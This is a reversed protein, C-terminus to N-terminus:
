ARGRAKLKMNMRKVDFRVHKECKCKKRPKIENRKEESEEDFKWKWKSTKKEFICYLRGSDKGRINPSAEVNTM